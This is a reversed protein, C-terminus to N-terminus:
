PRAERTARAEARQFLLIPLLLLALMAVALASAMPWDRNQFFESWLVTGIMLANSGGLLEPIVFEGVAPIFVLLSGALIGPMSLPLTVRLFIKWPRAGLDAAAELLSEDLRELIAYLPLVMFPLYSYVIGLYVAPETYLLTLPRDIIGMGMLVANVVGGGQLIVKWAYVRILFSTWFPLMVLLILAARLGPRSRAIGYAMPYGILLCLVTSVAAIRLSGLLADAYLSDETLAVFNDFHLRIAYGFGDTHEILPSFPPLAVATEALAIRLVIAFPALFFLLLWLYPPAIVLVRGSPKLRIRRM